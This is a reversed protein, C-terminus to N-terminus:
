VREILLDSDLSINAFNSVLLSFFLMFCLDRRLNCSSLLAITRGVHGELAKPSTVLQATYQYRRAKTVVVRDVGGFFFSRFSQM